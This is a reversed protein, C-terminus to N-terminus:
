GQDLSGDFYQGPGCDFGIISGDSPLYTINSIGGINLIVRNKTKSFFIDKHFAPVLPAGQGKAAIDRNRFNSVVTL